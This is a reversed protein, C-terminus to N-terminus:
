INTLAIFYIITRPVTYGGVAAYCMGVIMQYFKNIIEHEDPKKKNFDLAQIVLFIAVIIDFFAIIHLAMGLPVCCCCLMENKALIFIHEEQNKYFTQKRQNSASSSFSTNGGDSRAALNREFDDHDM